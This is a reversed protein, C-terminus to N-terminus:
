VHAIRKGFTARLLKLGDAPLFTENHPVVLKRCKKLAKCAALAEAGEGGIPNGRLNLYALKAVGPWAVLAKVGEGAIGNDALDLCSLREWKSGAIVEAGADGLACGALDICLLGALAPASALKQAAKAPMGCHRLSLFRLTPGRGPVSLRKADLDDIKNERLSLGVLAPFCPGALLAALVKPDTIDNGALNLSALLPLKAHYDALIAAANDGIASRGADLHRLEPFKGAVLGLTGVAGFRNSGVLLSRLRPLGLKSVSVLGGDSLGRLSLDLHTLTRLHTATAFEETLDLRASRGSLSESVSLSRLNCWNSETAIATLIENDSEDFRVSLERFNRVEPRAGLKRVTDSSRVGFVTFGTARAFNKCALVDDFGTDSADHVFLRYGPLNEPPLKAVAQAYHKANSISICHPFGREYIIIEGAARKGLVAKWRAEAKKAHKQSEKHLEELRAVAPSVEAPDYYKSWDYEQMAACASFVASAHPDDERLRHLQVEARIHAARHPDDHEDLWDALVLRPTDDDPAACVAAYLADYEPDNAM